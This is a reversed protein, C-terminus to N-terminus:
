EDPRSSSAKAVAVTSHTPRVPRRAAEVEPPSSPGVGSLAAVDEGSWRTWGLGHVRVASTEVGIVQKAAVREDVPDTRLTSLRAILSAGVAAHKM